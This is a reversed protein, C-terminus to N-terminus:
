GRSGSSAQTAVAAAFWGTISTPHTIGTGVVVCHAGAAIAAAAHAPTHIRGEAVVPLDLDGSLRAVLELDPGDTKVTYPTYGSLTTGVLDVGAEAALVGEAYTSCDAMVLVDHEARLRRVTESLTLGDPRERDTGDLAVIEAGTEAVTIAHELTPTIFVGEKGVKWLGILPVDLVERMARLHDPGQARVAVAGGAVVAQAVKTMTAADNMPEEGYAQASVVLGGRLTEILTKSLSM